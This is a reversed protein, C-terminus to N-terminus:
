PKVTQELASKLVMMIAKLRANEQELEQIRSQALALQRTVSETM